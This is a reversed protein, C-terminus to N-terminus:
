AWEWFDRDVTPVLGAVHYLVFRLECAPASSATHKQMHGRPPGKPCCTGFHREHFPLPPSTLQGSGRASARPFGVPGWFYSAAGAVSQRGLGRKGGTFVLSM